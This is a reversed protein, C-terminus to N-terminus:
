DTVPGNLGPATVVVRCVDGEAGSFIATVTGQPVSRAFGLWALSRWDGGRLAQIVARTVQSRSPNPAGALPAHAILGIVVSDADVVVGATAENAITGTLRVADGRPARSATLSGGCIPLAGAEHTTGIAPDRLSADGHARALTVVDYVVHPLPHLTETWEDDRVGASVALGAAAVNRAKAWWVVGTFVDAVLVALTGGIVIVRWFSGRPRVLRDGRWETLGILLAAWYTLAFTAYRSQAAQDVGFRARGFAAMGGSAMGFLLLGAVIQELRTAGRGHRLTRLVLAAGAVFLLAGTIAGIGDHLYTLFPAFFATFYAVIAWAHGMPSLAGSAGTASTGLVLWAFAASGALAMAVHTLTVARSERRAAALMALVIPVALGNSTTLM